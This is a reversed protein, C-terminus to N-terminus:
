KPTQKTIQDPCFMIQMLKTFKVRPLIDVIICLRFSGM